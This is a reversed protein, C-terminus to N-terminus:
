WRDREVLRHRRVSTIRLRRATWATIPVALLLLLTVWGWDAPVQRRYLEPLLYRFLPLAVAGLLTAASLTRFFGALATKTRSVAALLTRRDDRFGQAGELWARPLSGILLQAQLWARVTREPTLEELLERMQLRAIFARIHRRFDFGPDLRLIMLEAVTLVRYYRTTVEEFSLGYDRAASLNRMIMTAASRERLTTRPNYAANQWERVNRKVEREFAALDTDEPPPNGLRLFARFFADVDGTGLLSLMSLEVSRMDRGMQGVIGFDVYGIRNGPLVVLNGAHPDAHFLEQEFVQNFSSHFLHEAVLPLDLGDQQWAELAARDGEDLAQLIRSIWVGELLELTLVRPTTTEWYVRPICVRPDEELGRRLREAHTAEVTFDLEERTWRAFDEALPRVRIRFMIGSFDVLASLFRVFRLDTEVTRRLGPRQVKVAVREGTPLRARHVQAFSAAAFPKEEWAAFFGELPGGLEAEVIARAASPDFGPMHDLLLSLEEVYAPRLLDPRMALIQGFKVFTVGLRELALRLCRAEERPSEPRGTWGGIRARVRAAWLSLLYGTFVFLIQLSRRLTWM